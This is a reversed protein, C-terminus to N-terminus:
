QRAFAQTVAQDDAVGQLFPLMVEPPQFAIQRIVRLRTLSSKGTIRNKFGRRVGQSAGPTEAVSLNRQYARSAHVANVRRPFFNAM